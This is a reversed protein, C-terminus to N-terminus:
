QLGRWLKKADLDSSAKLFLQFPNTYSIVCERSGLTECCFLDDCYQPLDIGAFGHLFDSTAVVYAFLNEIASTFLVAVKPNITQIWGILTLM